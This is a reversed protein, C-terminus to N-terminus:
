GRADPTIASVLILKGPKRNKAAEDLAELRVKAKDRGFPEILDDRIGLLHAIETIPKMSFSGTQAMTTSM